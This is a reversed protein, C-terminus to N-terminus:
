REGQRERAAALLGHATQETPAALVVTLLRGDLRCGAWTDDEIQIIAKDALDPLYHKLFSEYGGRADAASEYQVLLLISREERDGYKALVVETTDDIHLINEDAIFYHSNLWMYHHFYRVSRKQLSEVPLLSLIKPLPGTSPIAHDIYRALETVAEKAEATEPSALISVYYHDKWFVLLGESSESGQGFTDDATEASHSFVGFANASSGMDFLDVIVDPQGAQSYTRSTLREFAYSLYLEAGGDIYDFLNEPSHIRDAATTQWGRVTDPLLTSLESQADPMAVAGSCLALCLLMALRKRNILEPKHV